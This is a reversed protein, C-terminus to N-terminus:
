YRPHSSVLPKLLTECMVIKATLEFFNLMYSDVNYIYITAIYNDPLFTISLLCSSLYFEGFIIILSSSLRPCVQGNRLKTGNNHSHNLLMSTHYHYSIRCLYKSISFFSPSSSNGVIRGPSLTSRLSLLGRPIRRVM